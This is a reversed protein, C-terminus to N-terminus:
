REILQEVRALFYLDKKRKRATKVRHWRRSMVNLMVVSLTVVNLVVNFSIHCEAYHCKAHCEVYLTTISLTM